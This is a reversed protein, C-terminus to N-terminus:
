SSSTMEFHPDEPCEVYSKADYGNRGRRSSTDNNHSTMDETHSTMDGAHSTMDENHSAVDEQWQILKAVNVKPGWYSLLVPLLVLGHVAGILVIGLFM